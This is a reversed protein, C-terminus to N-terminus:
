AAKRLHEVRGAFDDATSEIVNKQMWAQFRERDAAIEDWELYAANDREYYGHTYSPHSGGPVVSIAAITWSPLVTLNPHLDDFDGVVEEVTVVARKAALVAEKQIGIIGEVLVNGKRDAKQAHIFSVDPRIAPVAALVEGTFPCTVARINPNVTALDAGRYGRFVACPLGAAGAEYANAMGAHSHEEVEISRPFGNEIADRARRLLGVGPNGVYSFIIKRAM